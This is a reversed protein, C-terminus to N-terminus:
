VKDANTIPRMGVRLQEELANLENRLREAPWHPCTEAQACASIVMALIFFVAGYFLHGKM